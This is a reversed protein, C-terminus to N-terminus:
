RKPKARPRFIDPRIAEPELQMIEAVLLVRAPPVRKQRDAARWVAVIADDDLARRRSSEEIRQSRTKLLLRYGALINAQTLGANTTWELLVRAHKRLSARAGPLHSLADLAEVLDRRTLRAIDSSMHRALGRRLASLVRSINVIGRARLNREYVGDNGGLPTGLTSRQARRKERRAAVPDHGQAIM